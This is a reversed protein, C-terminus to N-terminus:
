HGMRRVWNPPILDVPENQGIFWPTPAIVQANSNYSLMAAWWSFSSNAIVYGKGLRMAELTQASSNAVDSIYRIQNVEIGRLYRKAEEIEDSFVWISKYIGSKWLDSISERYYKETLLGFSNELRYDGFRMHVILPDEESALNRLSLLQESPLVLKLNMIPNPYTSSTIWKYTQFYGILHLPKRSNTRLEPFYGVGQNLSIKLYRGFTVINIISALFICLKRLVESHEYRRPDVGMRLLYGVAKSSLFRFKHANLISVNEPLVFDTIEPLGISNVRPRSNVCEVLVMDKEALALAASLQFLQNGLGGTLSLYIRRM